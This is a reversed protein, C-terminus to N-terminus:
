WEVNNLLHKGKNSSRAFSRFSIFGFNWRDMWGDRQKGQINWTYQAMCVLVNLIYVFFM